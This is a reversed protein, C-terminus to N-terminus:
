PIETNLAKTQQCVIRPFDEAEFPVSKFDFFPDRQLNGRAVGVNMIKPRFLTLEPMNKGVEFRLEYLV